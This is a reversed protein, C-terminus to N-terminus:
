ARGVERTMLFDLAVVGRGAPLVRVPNMELERLTPGAAEGLRGAKVLLDVLAEVDLPPSGRWGTLLPACRLEEVLAKARASSVPALTTAADGILEALVGGFGVTVLPLGDPGSRTLGVILDVGEDAMEQVLVGRVTEDRFRDFMDSVAAPVGQPLVGLIVGGRETKHPIQPAQVKVVYRGDPDLVLAGTSAADTVLVSRPTPIGAAEMLRLGDAEVVSEDTLQGLVAGLDGLDVDGVPEAPSPRGGVLSELVRMAERASAFVPIGAERLLDRAEHTQERAAAWVLVIPKDVSPILRALSTAMATALDGTVLTLVIALADVEQADCGVRCVEIFDDVNSSRFIQATVDVPNEVAGFAPVFRALAAQTDPALDDISLGHEDAKDAALSGAGGSTTIVATSRGRSRPLTTHAHSLRVLDDIDHAEVVEHERVVARYAADDGVIAGTHSAAARAGAESTASRLVILSKELVQAREALARFEREDVSSELYMALARTDDDDILHRAVEVTTLDAQNGTSAWGAIGIGQERALSLISGGVAGSQGVYSLSGPRVPGLELAATFTGYLGHHASLVGQCNPGLVRVGTRRSADVLERQLARGEPGAEGFGSAFVVAAKAGAAAVEPLLEVAASAPVMLLALDIEAPLTALEPHCELGHLFDHRPNVPLVTGDFGFEVLYELPRAFPNGARGSAGVIAVTRADFLAAIGSTPRADRSSQQLSSPSMHHRQEVRGQCVQQMEHTTHCVCFM